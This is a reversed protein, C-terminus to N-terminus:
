ISQNGFTDIRNKDMTNLILLGLQAINYSKIADNKAYGDYAFHLIRNRPWFLNEVFDKLLSDISLSPFGREVINKLDGSNRVFKEFGQSYLLVGTKRIKDYIKSHKRLLAEIAEISIEQDAEWTEIQLWKKYLECIEWEVCAASFVMSLIHDDNRMLEYQSRFLGRYGVTIDQGLPGSLDEGCCCRFEFSADHLRIWVINSKRCRYCEPLELPIKMKFKVASSLAPV